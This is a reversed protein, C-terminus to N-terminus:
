RPLREGMEALALELRLLDIRVKRESEKVFYVLLYPLAAITWVALGVLIKRNGRVADPWHMGQWVLILVMVLACLGVLEAHLSGDRRLDVVGRRLERAAYYALLVVLGLAVPLVARGDPQYRAPYAVFLRIFWVTVALCGALGVVLGARETTTLKRETLASLRERYRSELVASPPEAALLQDRLTPETM